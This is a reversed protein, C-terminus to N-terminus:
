ACVHVCVRPNPISLISLAGNQPTQTNVFLTKPSNLYQCDRAVRVDSGNTISKQTNVTNVTNVSNVKHRAVMVATAHPIIM